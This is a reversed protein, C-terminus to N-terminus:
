ILVQATFDEFPFKEKQKSAELAMGVRKGWNVMLEDLAITLPEEEATNVILGNIANQVYEDAGPVDTTIVPLKSAMADLLENLGGSTRAPNVYIDANRLLSYLDTDADVLSTSAQLQHQEIFKQLAAKGAGYGVLTLHWTAHAPALRAWTKLLVEFGGEKGFPGAAVINNAKKFCAPKQYNYHEVWIAPNAVCVANAGYLKKNLAQGPQGIVVVKHAKALLAKKNKVPKTEKLNAPEIYVFPISLSAAAECGPLYALSIVREIHNKQLLSVLAKSTVRPPVAVMPLQLYTPLQDGPGAVLVEEGQWTLATGLAAGLRLGSFQQHVGIFLITKM